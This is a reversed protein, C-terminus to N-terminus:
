NVTTLRNGYMKETSDAMIKIRQKRSTFRDLLTQSFRYAGGPIVLPERGLAAIADHAVKDMALPKPAFAGLSGDSTLPLTAAGAGSSSIVLAATLLFMKTRVSM